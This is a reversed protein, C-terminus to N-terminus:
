KEGLIEIQKQIKADTSNIRTNIFSGVETMKKELTSRARTNSHDTGLWLIYRAGKYDRDTNLLFLHDQMMICYSQLTSPGKMTSLRAFSESMIAILLNMFILSIFISSMFFVLYLVTANEEAYGDLGFEGFGGMWTQLFADFFGFGVKEDYVPTEEGTRNLDLVMICNTYACLCIFLMVAFVKVDVIMEEIMKIFTTFNKFIRMYYFLKIYLLLVGISAVVNRTNESM